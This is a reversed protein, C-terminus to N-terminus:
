LLRGDCLSNLPACCITWIAILRCQIDVHIAVALSPVQMNQHHRRCRHRLIVLTPVSGVKTRSGSAEEQAQCHRISHSLFVGGRHESHDM